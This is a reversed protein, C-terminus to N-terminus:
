TTAALPGSLIGGLSASKAVVSERLSWNAIRRSLPSSHDSSWIACRRLWRRRDTRGVLSQHQHLGLCVNRVGYQWALASVHQVSDNGSGVLNSIKIARSSSVAAATQHRSACALALGQLRDGPRSSTPCRCKWVSSTLSNALRM